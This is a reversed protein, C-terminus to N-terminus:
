SGSSSPTSSTWIANVANASVVSPVRHATHMLRGSVKWVSRVTAISGSSNRDPANKRRDESGPQIATGASALGREYATSASRRVM